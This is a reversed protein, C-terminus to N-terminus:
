PQAPVRGRRVLQVALSRRYTISHAERFTKSRARRTLERCRLVETAKPGLSDRIAKAQDLTAADGNMHVKPPRGVVGYLSWFWRMSDPM